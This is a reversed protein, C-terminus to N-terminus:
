EHTGWNGGFNEDDIVIFVQAVRELARESALAVRHDFGVAAFGADRERLAVLGVDDQEVVAHAPHGADFGQLHEAARLRLRHHDQHGREARGLGRDLRHLEARIIVDHLGKVLRLEDGQDVAREAGAAVERRGTLRRAREDIRGVVLFADDATRLRHLFHQLRDSLDGGAIRRDEDGAFAARALFEDRTADRLVGQAGFTREHGDIARGDRFVQDFGFEEAM